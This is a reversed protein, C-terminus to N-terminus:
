PLWGMSLAIYLGMVTVILVWGYLREYAMM